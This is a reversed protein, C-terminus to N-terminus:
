VRLGPQHTHLLAARERVLEREGSVCGACAGPLAVSSMKGGEKAELDWLCSPPILKVCTPTIPEGTVFSDKIRLWGLVFEQKGPPSLEM